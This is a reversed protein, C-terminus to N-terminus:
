AKLTPFVGLAVRADVDRSLRNFVASFHGRLGSTLMIKDFDAQVLELDVWTNTPDAQITLKAKDPSSIFAFFYPRIAARVFAKFQADTM